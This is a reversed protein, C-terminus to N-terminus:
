LPLCQLLPLQMWRMQSAAGTPPNKEAGWQAPPPDGERPPGQAFSAVARGGLTFRELPTRLTAWLSKSSTPLRQQSEGCCAVGPLKAPVPPALATDLPCTGLLTTYSLAVTSAAPLVAESLLSTVNRSPPPACCAGAGGEVGAAAAQLAAGPARCSRRGCTYGAAPPPAPPAQVHATVPPPAHADQAAPRVTCAGTPTVHTGWPSQARGCRLEGRPLM